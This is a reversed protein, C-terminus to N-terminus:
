LGLLAGVVNAFISSYWTRLQQQQQQQQQQPEPHPARDTDHM